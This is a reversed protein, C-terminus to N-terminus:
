LDLSDRRRDEVSSFRTYQGQFLLRVTGTPGNRQKSIIVEAIGKDTTDPNYKEDRYIFAIVDADQEIAGSERLDSPMPRKDARKEVERSLQSLAIVPVNLDKALAKLGRSMDSVQQNRPQSPDDAGMLQIYDVVIVGLNPNEEKLRRSRTRIESMSLGPSDDLFIPLKRVLESAGSLRNWDDEELRGNRMKEGDVRAQACLMRNVLQNKSMELSFIGVAVNDCIAANQAMNLALATKGMSPRAAVIILDGRQMGNLLSDLDEFGCRIGTLGEPRDALGSVRAIEEDVVLAMSHWGRRVHALNLDFIAKSARDLLESVPEPQGFAESIFDQSGIIFQRLLSKQQVGKAYHTLNATSPVQETLELVYSVGGYREERRDRTMRELVTVPDIPENLVDMERILRYLAAHDPRYFDEAEVMEAVERLMNPNRLLGGLLAREFELSQPLPRNKDILSGDLRASLHSVVALSGVREM